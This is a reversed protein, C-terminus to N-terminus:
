SFKCPILVGPPSNLKWYRVAPVYLPIDELKHSPRSPVILVVKGVPIVFILEVLFASKMCYRILNM